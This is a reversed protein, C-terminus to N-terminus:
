CTAAEQRGSTVVGRLTRGKFFNVINNAADMAVACRVRDVASGLHPTLLTEELKFLEQTVSAPRDARGLDEFEFVDAAYGGLQGSRIAEAVAVEDVLSGRAPNILYAGPKMGKLFERSVLHLTGSTLPVALVVFDCQRALEDMPAYEIGLEQEAEPALRGTDFYVTRCDFARLRVVTARSIEGMGVFGVTSNSVGTGYLRPRWGHFRGARVLRDGARIKRSLGIMLGITLEAVSQTLSRESHTVTVGNRVCAGMDINDYGKLAGAIIKLRPCQGLVEENIHDSMFAILADAKSLKKLWKEKPWPGKRRNAVVTLQEQCMRQIVEDHVWNTVVVQPQKRM